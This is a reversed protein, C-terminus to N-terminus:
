GHYGLSLPRPDLWQRILKGMKRPRCCEEDLAQEFVFPSSVTLLGKNQLSGAGNKFQKESLTGGEDENRYRLAKELSLRSIAETRENMGMWRHILQVVGAKQAKRVNFRRLADQGDYSFWQPRFLGNPILRV